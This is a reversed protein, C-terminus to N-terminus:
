RAGGARSGTVVIQETFQESARGEAPPTAEETQGAEKARKSNRSKRSHPQEQEQQAIAPLMLGLVLMSSVLGM